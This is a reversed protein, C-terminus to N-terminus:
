PKIRESLIWHLNEENDVLIQRQLHYLIKSIQSSLTQILEQFQLLIHQLQLLAQQHDRCKKQLNTLFQQATQFALVEAMELQQNELTLDM